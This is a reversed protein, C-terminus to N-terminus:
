EQDYNSYYDYEDETKYELHSEDEFIEEYFLRLKEEKRKDDVLDASSSNEDTMTSTSIYTITSERSKTENFDKEEPITIQLKQLEELIELTSMVSRSSINDIEEILKDELEVHKPEFGLDGRSYVNSSLDVTELSESPAMWKRSNYKDIVSLLYSAFSEIDIIKLFLNLIYKVSLATNVACKIIGLVECCTNLAFSTKLKFRNTMALKIREQHLIVELKRRVYDDDTFERKNTSELLQHYEEEFNAPADFSKSLKNKVASHIAVLKKLLISQIKSTILRQRMHIKSEKIRKHFDKFTNKYYNKHETINAHDGWCQVLENELIVNERLMRQVTLPIITSILDSQFDKSTDLVSKYTVKKLNQRHIKAKLQFDKLAQELEEEKRAIYENNDNFKSTLSEESAKYDELANIKANLLKIESSLQRRTEDFKDSIEKVRNEHEAARNQRKKEIDKYKQKLKDVTKTQLAINTNLEVIVAESEITKNNSYNKVYESFDELKENRTQLRQIKQELDSILTEYMARQINIITPQENYEKDTLNNMDPSQLTAPLSINGKDAGELDVM